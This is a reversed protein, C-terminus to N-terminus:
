RAEQHLQVGGANEGPGQVVLKGRTAYTPERGLIDVIKQYEAPTLQHQAILDPTIAIIDSAASVRAGGGFTDISLSGPRREIGHDGAIDRRSVQV